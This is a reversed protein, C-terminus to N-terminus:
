KCYRIADKLAARAAPTPKGGMATIFEDAASTFAASDADEDVPESPEMETEVPPPAKKVLDKAYAKSLAPDM